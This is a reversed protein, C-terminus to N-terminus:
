SINGEPNHGSSRDGVDNNQGMNKTDSDGTKKHDVVHYHEDHIIAMKKLYAVFDLLDKKLVSKDM